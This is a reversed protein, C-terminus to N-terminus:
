REIAFPQIASRGDMTRLECFYTGSTLGNRDLAFSHSGVGAVYENSSRVRGLADYIEFAIAQPRDVTVIASIGGSEEAISFSIAAPTASTVASQGGDSLEPYKLARYSYNYDGLTLEFLPRNHPDVETMSVDPDLGWGIFTNGNPLREANGMAMSFTEPSHHYQWVLTLTKQATDIAYEVARSAYLYYGPQGEVSDFNGNDFLILHGNPLWRVSHQYSFWISDGLLRFQNHAGGLRWIMDGTESSILTIESLNRNSLLINRDSDFDLSNSHQFDIQGLELDEHVADAVQYHQDGRWEFTEHHHADFLQIVSGQITADTDIGPAYQDEAILDKSLAFLAYSGDAFVHLDHDDAFYGGVTEFSDIVNWASDLGYYKLANYDFYTTMGNPQKQFDFAYSPTLDKQRVTTGSENLNLLLNSNIGPNGGENAIYIIGPTPTRDVSVTMIPLTDPTSLGLVSSKARRSSHANSTGGLEARLDPQVMPGSMTHFSFTDTLPEGDSLFERLLVSVSENYLFPDDPTLLLTRGDDSLTAQATHPGSKTGVITMSGTEAFSTSFPLAARIGINTRLPVHRAGATPFQSRVLPPGSRARSVGSLFVFGLVRVLVFVARGMKGRASRARLRRYRMM